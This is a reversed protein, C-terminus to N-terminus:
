VHVTPGLDTLARLRETVQDEFSNAGSRATSVSSPRRQMKPLPFGPWNETVPTTASAPTSTNSSSPRSNGAREPRWQWCLFKWNLQGRWWLGYEMAPGGQEAKAQAFAIAQRAKSTKRNRRRKASRTQPPTGTELMPIFLSPRIPLAREAILAGTSRMEKEFIVKGFRSHLIAMSCMICPEHTVYLELQLCLYGKPALTPPDFYLRELETIPADLFIQSSATPEPLCALLSAPFAPDSDVPTPSAIPPDPPGLMLSVMASDLSDQTASIAQHASVPPSVATLTIPASEGDSTAYPAFAPPEAKGDIIRRKQAVLGIARMVAHATINGKGGSKRADECSPLGRWRADTAVAVVRAGYKESRELVVVGVPEGIGAEKGEAAVRRALSMCDQANLPAEELLEVESRAMIGPHPGYPNTNKFSTPWYTESWAEAQQPSVPAFQPVQIRHIKAPPVDNAHFAAAIADALDAEDILCSACLLLFITKNGGKKRRSSGTLSEFFSPPCLRPRLIEPLQICPCVRRLHALNIKKFDDPLLPKLARTSPHFNSPQTPLLKSTSQNISKSL